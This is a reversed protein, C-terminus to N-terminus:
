EEEFEQAPRNNSTISSLDNKWRHSMARTSKIPIGILNQDIKNRVITERTKEHTEV